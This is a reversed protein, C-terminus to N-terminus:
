NSHTTIGNQRETSRRVVWEQGITFLNSTTWYLAIMSPLTYAIITVIVPMMYRMQFQMSHAFNESFSGSQKQKKNLKPTVLKIQVYQTGGTILAFVVSKKTIDLFGLHGSISNSAKTTLAITNEEVWQALWDRVPSLFVQKAASGDFNSTVGRVGNDVETLYFLKGDNRLALHIINTPLFQGRLDGSVGNESTTATSIVINAAFTEIIDSEDRLYRIILQDPSVWLVEQIVPITSNTIRTTKTSTPYTEYVHGTAREIFRITTQKEANRAFVIGAVPKNWLPRLVPLNDDTITIQNDPLQNEDDEASTKSADEQTRDPDDLFSFLSRQQTGGDEIEGSGRDSTISFYLVVGALIVLVVVIVIIIIVKRSM